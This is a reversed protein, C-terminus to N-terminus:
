FNMKLIVDSPLSIGLKTSAQPTSPTVRSHDPTTSRARRKDQRSIHDQQRSEPPREETIISYHIIYTTTYNNETQHLLIM